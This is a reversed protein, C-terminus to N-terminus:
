PFAGMSVPESALSFVSARACAAARPNHPLERGGGAQSRQQTQRNEGEGQGVSEFFKPTIGSIEVEGADLAALVFTYMYKCVILVYMCM